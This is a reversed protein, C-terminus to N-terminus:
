SILTMIAILLLLPNEIRQFRFYLRKIAISINNKVTQESLSLRNAIEKVSLQDVRSLSFADRMNGPMKEIESMLWDNLESEIVADEPSVTVMTEEEDILERANVIARTNASYHDIVKFKAAKFLYPEFSDAIVIGARNNWLSLFIDQVFEESAETSRTKGYIYRLIKKDYRKMLLLLAQQNNGQMRRLLEADPILRSNSM